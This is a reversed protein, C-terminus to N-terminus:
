STFVAHMVLTVGSLRACDGHLVTDVVKQCVHGLTAPPAMCIVSNLSDIPKVVLPHDLVHAAECWSDDQLKTGKSKREGSHAIPGTSRETGLIRTLTRHDPYSDVHCIGDEHLTALAVHHM